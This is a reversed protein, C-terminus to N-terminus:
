GMIASSLDAIRKDIHQATEFNHIESQRGNPLIQRFKPTKGSLNKPPRFNFNQFTSWRGTGWAFKTHFIKNRDMSPRFNVAQTGIFFYYLYVQLVYTSVGLPPQSIVAIKIRFYTAISQTSQHCLKRRHANIWSHCPIWILVVLLMAQLTLWGLHKLDEDCFM